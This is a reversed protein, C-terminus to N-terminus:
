PLRAYDEPTDVDLLLARDQWPLYHPAFRSFIARGGVDGRLALLAPFTRADFLVPNARQGDVLPAIVAEGSRAHAERLAHLVSPTVQPQDALLFIAGSCTPPLAQLGARISASQGEAWNPNHVLQLPLGTLARRVAEAEAGTVVVVPDLGAQLASIAAARVFPQGHYDLLQKPRGFRRAAGGALVIGAVPTHVALPRAAGDTILIRPYHPLLEDALRRAVAALAPNEAQTLALVRRAAPPLGRLGGQPHRLVRALAAPTVPQGPSLGSLAAFRDVRHVHAEGLPQGLGRLGSVTVVTQAWPPLAPEHAAPAKLPRGRSGDAELLLPLNLNEHLWSLINPAPATLRDDQVPGSVLTLGPPPQAALRRAAELDTLILHRDALDAQWAGLHTTTSVLAAPWERALAFLLTTKGGAGVFALRPRDACALARRLTLPM